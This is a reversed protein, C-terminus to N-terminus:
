QKEALESDLATIRRALQNPSAPRGVRWLNWVTGARPHPRNLPPGTVATGIADGGASSPRRREASASGVFYSGITDGNVDLVRV